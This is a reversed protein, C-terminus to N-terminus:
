YAFEIFSDAYLGSRGVLSFLESLSGNPQTKLRAM